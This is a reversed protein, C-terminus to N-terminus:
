SEFSLAKSVATATLSRVAPRSRLVDARRRISSSIVRSLTAPPPVAAVPASIPLRGCCVKGIPISGTACPFAKEQIISHSDPSGHGEAILTSPTRNGCADTQADNNQEVRRKGSGCPRRILQGAARGTLARNGCMMVLFSGGRRRIVHVAPMVHGSHHGAAHRTTM